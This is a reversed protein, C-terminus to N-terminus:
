PSARGHSGSFGADGFTFIGGDSAVLWYGGGDPTAAMGVVPHALPKGAWPASFAADGFTFVGGDSAVLWYGGGDPTAAMGVIPDDLPTGGTSGYFGADGFTFVGGDSAVLWYGGGDPTPPWASSRLTSPKGGMSGHFTADGFTFVRRGGGRALLRGTPPRRWGVIPANLPKGVMSGYFAADGFTFVGGDAGVLWYGGGDPTIAMGVVPQDPTGGALRLVRRQRFHLGRRRRCGALLRPAPAVVIREMDARALTGQGTQSPHFYDLTSVDTPTFDYDFTAYRDWKCNAYQGCVQSLVLNDAEEQTLVQQRQTETNAVSLMSQCIGLSWVAQATPNGHLASWLGYINPISSVFIHAGPPM